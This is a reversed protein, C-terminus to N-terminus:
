VGAGQGGAVRGCHKPPLHAATGTAGQDGFVDKGGGGARYVCSWACPPPPQRPTTHTLTHTKHTHIVGKGAGGGRGRQGSQVGPLGADCRRPLQRPQTGWGTGNAQTPGWCPHGRPRPFPCRLWCRDWPRRAGVWVLGLVLVVVVALVPMVLAQLRRPVREREPERERLQAQGRRGKLPHMRTRSLTPRRRYHQEGDVVV